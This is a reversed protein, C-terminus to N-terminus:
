DAAQFVAKLVGQDVEGTAVSAAYLIRQLRTLVTASLRIARADEVEKIAATIRTMLDWDLQLGAHVNAPVGTLVYLLDLHAALRTLYVADPSNAGSEYAIQSAKSVAAAAGFESQNLGTKARQARLREGLRVRIDRKDDVQQQTTEM